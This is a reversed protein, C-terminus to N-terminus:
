ALEDPHGPIAVFVPTQTAECAAFAARFMGDRLAEVLERTALKIRAGVVGPLERLRAVADCVNPDHHDVNCVSAFRDPWRTSAEVAYSQDQEYSGDDRRSRYFDPLSIVATHVGVADMAALAEENSMAPGMDATPAWSADFARGIPPTDEWTNLQADVIEIDPRTM